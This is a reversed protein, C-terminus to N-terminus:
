ASRHRGTRLEHADVRRFVAVLSQRSVHLEPGKGAATIAVAVEDLALARAEQDFATPGRLLDLVAELATPMAGSDSLPMKRVWAWPSWLREARWRAVLEVHRDVGRASRQAREVELVAARAASRRVALREGDPLSSTLGNM